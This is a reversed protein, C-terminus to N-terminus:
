NNKFWEWTGNTITGLEVINTSGDFADLDSNNIYNLLSKVNSPTDLVIDGSGNITLGGSVTTSSGAGSFQSFTLNDTGVTGSNTTLVWGSSGYLTGKEIFTFIGSSVSAGTNLDNARVWADAKVLYIGNEVSNTQNKVLVRDDIDVTTGDIIQTGSLTINTTTTVKLLM